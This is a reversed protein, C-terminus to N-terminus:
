RDVRMARREDSWMAIVLLLAAARPTARLRQAAPRHIERLVRAAAGRPLPRPVPAGDHLADGLGRGGRHREEGEESSRQKSARHM